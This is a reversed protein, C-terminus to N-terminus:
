VKEKVGDFFISGIVEVLHQFRTISILGTQRETGAQREVSRGLIGHVEMQYQPRLCSIRHRM